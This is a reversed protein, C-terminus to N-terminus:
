VQYFPHLNLSFPCCFLLFGFLSPGIKFICDIIQWHIPHLLLLFIFSLTIELNRAQAM